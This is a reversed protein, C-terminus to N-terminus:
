WFQARTPWTLWLIEGSVGLGLVGGLIGGLLPTAGPRMHFVEVAQVGLAWLGIALMTGVGASFSAILLSRAALVTKNWRLLPRGMLRAQRWAARTRAVAAVAAMLVLIGALSASVAAALLVSVVTVMVLLTALSFQVPTSPPNTIRPAPHTPNAPM